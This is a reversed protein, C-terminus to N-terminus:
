AFCEIGLQLAQVFRAEEPDARFAVVFEFSDTGCSNISQQSTPPTPRAFPPAEGLGARQEFLLAGGPCPRIPGLIPRSEAFDIPQIMATPRCDVSSVVGPCQAEFVHFGNPRFAHRNSVLHLDVNKTGDPCSTPPEGEWEQANVRVVSGIEDVILQRAVAGLVLEGESAACPGALKHKQFIGWAQM